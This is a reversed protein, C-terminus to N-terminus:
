GNHESDTKYLMSSCFYPRMIDFLKFTDDASFTLFVNCGAKHKSKRPVLGWKQRLIDILFDHDKDSFGLSFLKAVARVGKTKTNYWHTGGDDMYWVALGLTDLEGVIKPVIKKGEPYFENRLEEMEDTVYSSLRYGVYSKSDTTKVTRVPPRTCINKLKSYMWNIYGLQAECHSVSFQFSKDITADGLLSGIVVSREEPSLAPKHQRCAFKYSESKNIKVGLLRGVYIVLNRDIKYKRAVESFSPITRFLDTSFEVGKYRLRDASIWECNTMVSGYAAPCKAGYVLSIQRNNMGQDKLETYRDYSLLDRM